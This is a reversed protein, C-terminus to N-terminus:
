VDVLQFTYVTLNPKTTLKFRVPNINSWLIDSKTTIIPNLIELPFNSEDSPAM